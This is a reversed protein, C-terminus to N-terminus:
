GQVYRVESARKPAAIAPARRPTLSHAWRLLPREVAFWSLAAVALSVPLVVALGGLLDLPLAGVSRLWLLLPLHWLYLGYSVTGVAALPRWAPSREHGEVALAAALIAAFGLGGLSDRITTSFLRALPGHVVGVHMLGDAAVALLGAALLLAALRRSPRGRNCLVAVLMGAAFYPLAAPLLKFYPFVPGTLANWALGLAFLGAVLALQANRRRARRLGIWGILPLALYFAAEIALTWTPPDLTLLTASSLNQGFVFFLPLGWAPPLEVGPTDAAGWLLAVSGLIALYYAPIIRAARRVAYRGTSPAPTGELAAGAWPRYLLYGSLVFFLILGLRGENLLKDPITELTSGPVPRAYAWVHFLVVSLAALGRLADLPISRGPKM